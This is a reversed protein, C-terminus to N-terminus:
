KRYKETYKAHSSFVCWICACFGYGSVRLFCIFYVPIISVYVWASFVDFVHAFIMCLCGCFVWSFRACFAYGSVLLFCISCVCVCVVCRCRCFVCWICARFGCVGAFFVHLVRLFVTVLCGCFFEHFVRVFFWLWVCVCVMCLCGCFVGSIIIQSKQIAQLYSDATEGRVTTQNVVWWSIRMWWEIQIGSEIQMTDRLIGVNEKRGCGSQKYKMCNSLSELFYVLEICKRKKCFHWGFFPCPM